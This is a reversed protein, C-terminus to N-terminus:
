LFRRKFFLIIRRWFAPRQLGFCVEDEDSFDFLWIDSDRKGEWEYIVKVKVPALTKLKQMNTKGIFVGTKIKEEYVEDRGQHLLVPPSLTSIYERLYEIELKFPDKVIGAARYDLREKKRNFHIAISINHLAVEGYNEICIYNLYYRTLLPIGLPGGAEQFPVEKEFTFVYYPTPQKFRDHLVSAIFAGIVTLILTGLAGVVTLILKLM